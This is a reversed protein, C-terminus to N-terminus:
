PNSKAIKNCDENSIKRHLSPTNSMALINCIQIAKDILKYNNGSLVQLIIYVQQKNWM